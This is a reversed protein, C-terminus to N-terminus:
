HNEGNSCVNICNLCAQACSMCAPDDINKGCIDACAQCAKHSVESIDNSLDSGRALLRGALSCIDTCDRCTKVCSPHNQHEACSTICNECAAVCGNFAALRMAVHDGQQHGPAHQSSDHQHQMASLATAILLGHLVVLTKVLLRM